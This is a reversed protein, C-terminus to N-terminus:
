LANTPWDLSGVQDADAARVLRKSTPSPENRVRYDNLIANRDGHGFSCISWAHYADRLSIFRLGKAVARVGNRASDPVRLVGLEYM